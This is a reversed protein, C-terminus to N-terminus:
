PRPNRDAHVVLMRKGKFREKWYREIGPADDSNSAAIRRIEALIHQEHKIWDGAKKQAAWRKRQTDGIRKRAAVSMKRKKPTKVSPADAGPGNVAKEPGLVMLTMLQRAQTLEAIRCDISNIIDEKPTM